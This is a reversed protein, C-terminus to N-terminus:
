MGAEQGSLLTKLRPSTSIARPTAQAIWPMQRDRSAGDQVRWGEYAGAALRSALALRCTKVAWALASAGPRAGGAVCVVPRALGKTQCDGAQSGEGRSIAV